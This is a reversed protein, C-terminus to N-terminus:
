ELLGRDYKQTKITVCSVNNPTGEYKYSNQDDFSLSHCYLHEGQMMFDLTTMKQSSSPYVMTFYQKSGGFYFTSVPEGLLKAVQKPTKGQLAPKLREMQDPTDTAIPKGGLSACASLSLLAFSLVISNFKNMQDGYFYHNLLGVYENRLDVSM